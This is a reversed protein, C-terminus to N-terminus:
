LTVPTAGEGQQNQKGDKLKEELATINRGSIPRGDHFTVVGEVPCNESTYGIATRLNGIIEEEVRHDPGREIEELKVQLTQLDDVSIPTGDERSLLGEVPCNEM